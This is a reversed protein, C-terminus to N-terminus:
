DDLYQLFEHRPIERAGLSALHNTYIQCDILRVGESKLKQVLTIFGVKSANSTTSFMSEGCFVKKEKLYIGYLGGVLSSHHWVEVSQAIGLKYLELYAEQMQPTIWSGAQGERKMSACNVIVEEFASNFSVEFIGKKLVRAM